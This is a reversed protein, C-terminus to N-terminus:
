IPMNLKIGTLIGAHLRYCVPIDYRRTASWLCNVLTKFVVGLLPILYLM